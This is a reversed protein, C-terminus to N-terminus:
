FNRLSEVGHRTMGKRRDGIRASPPDPALGATALPKMPSDHPPDIARHCAVWIPIASRLGGWGQRRRPSRNCEDKSLRGVGSRGTTHCIGERALLQLQQNADTLAQPHHEFLRRGIESARGGGNELGDRLRRVKVVLRHSLHLNGNGLPSQRHLRSTVEVM